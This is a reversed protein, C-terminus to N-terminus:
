RVRRNVAKDSFYQNPICEQRLLLNEIGGLQFKSPVTEFTSPQTLNGSAGANRGGGNV